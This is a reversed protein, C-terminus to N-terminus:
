LRKYHIENKIGWKIENVSFSKDGINNSINKKENWM